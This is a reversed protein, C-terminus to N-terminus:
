TRKTFTRFGFNPEWNQIVVLFRTASENEQELEGMGLMRSVFNLFFCVYSVPVETNVRLLPVDPM